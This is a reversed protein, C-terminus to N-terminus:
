CTTEVVDELVAVKLKERDLFTEEDAAIQSAVEPCSLRARFAQLAAQDAFTLEATADFGFEFDATRSLSMTANTGPEHALYSRRHALPFANTTLRKILQVHSEYHERFSDPTISPKRHALIILRVPMTLALRTRSADEGLPEFKFSHLGNFIWNWVFYGRWTFEGATNVEVIAPYPINDITCVLGDGPKAAGKQNPVEICQYFSTHYTPLVAFDLFAERVAWPAANIVVETFLMTQHPTASSLTNAPVEVTPQSIQSSSSHRPSESSRLPLTRRGRIADGKQDYMDQLHVTSFVVTAIILLWQDLCSEPGTYRFPNHIFLPLRKALAVELAGSLFCMYGLANLCNRVLPNKDAGSLNNYWVDLALLLLSQRQGIGGYIHGHVQALFIFFSMLCLAQTPSIRKQPMPRWPKNIADEAIASPTRQNNISFPIFVLLVWLLVAPVRQCLLPLTVPTEDGFGYATTALSNFLGFITSPVVITKFDSYSFLFITYFHYVLFELPRVTARLLSLSKTTTGFGKARLLHSLVPNYPVKDWMSTM